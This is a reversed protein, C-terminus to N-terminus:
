AHPPTVDAKRIEKKHPKAETHDFHYILLQGFPMEVSAMDNEDIDELHKMLARITNGHSVLLVNKGQQLLPLIHEDFYPVARGHVDKLTEGNPVPHDWGRRIGNFEDEGIKDKVEWKNMGTLDGYDRESLEKSATRPVTAIKDSEKGALIGDLTQQTRKLDSTFVEDFTIDKLLAGLLNSEHKGKETLNIDTLGTWKGLLNWESETHRSIVLIGTTSDNYTM